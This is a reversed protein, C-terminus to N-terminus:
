ALAEATLKSAKKLKAIRQDCDAKIEDRRKEFKAKTDGKAKAIQQNLANIKADTEAKISAIKQEARDHLSQVKAKAAAVKAKLKDKADAVAQDLEQELEDLERNTAEIDREIQDDEVDIRWRRFVTGGLAEMRADLPATWGEAIEGVLAYKGPTLARGVDDLFQGDVGVNYLDVLWGTLSGGALGAALGVPGGFAGIMSGILM